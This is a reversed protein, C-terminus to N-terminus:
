SSWLEYGRLVATTDSNGATHHRTVLPFSHPWLEFGGHKGRSKTGQQTASSCYVIDSCLEENYYNEWKQTTPQSHLLSPFYSNKSYKSWWELKVQVSSIRGGTERWVRWRDEINFQGTLARTGAPDHIRPTAPAQLGAATFVVFAM